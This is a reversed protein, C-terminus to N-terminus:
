KGILAGIVGGAGAALGSWLVVRKEVATVRLVLADIRETVKAELVRGDHNAIWERIDQLTKPMKLGAM